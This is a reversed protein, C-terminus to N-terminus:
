NILRCRRRSRRGRWVRSRDTSRFSCFVRCVRSRWDRVGGDAGIMCRRGRDWLWCRRARRSRWSLYESSQGRRKPHLRQIQIDSQRWRVISTRWRRMCSMSRWRLLLKRRRSFYQLHMRVRWQSGATRSTPLKTPSKPAPTQSDPTCVSETQTTANHRRSESSYDKKDSAQQQHASLWHAAPKIIVAQMMQMSVVYSCSSRAYKSKPQRVYPYVLMTKPMVLVKLRKILKKIKTNPKSSKNTTWLKQFFTKDHERIHSVM